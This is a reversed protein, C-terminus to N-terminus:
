NELVFYVNFTQDTEGNNEITLQAESSRAPINEERFDYTAEGRSVYGTIAFLSADCGKPLVEQQAITLGITIQGMDTLATNPTIFFGTVRSYNEKMTLNVQKAAGAAVSVSREVQYTKRM